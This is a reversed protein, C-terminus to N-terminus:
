GKRVISYLEFQDTEDNLKAPLESYLNEESVAFSSVSDTKITKSNIVLEYIENDDADHISDNKSNDDAKTQVNRSTADNISDDQSELYASDNTAKYKANDAFQYNESYPSEFTEYITEDNDNTFDYVPENRSDDLVNTLIRNFQHCNLNKKQIHSYTKSHKKLKLNYIFFSVALILLIILIVNFIILLKMYDINFTNKPEGSINQTYKTLTFNLLELFEHKLENTKNTVLTVMIDEIEAVDKKTEKLNNIIKGYTSTELIGIKEKLTLETNKLNDLLFETSSKLSKEISASLNKFNIEDSNKMEIFKLSLGSKMDNLQNTFNLDMKTIKISLNTNKSDVSQIKHLCNKNPDNLAQKLNDVSTPIKKLEKEFKGISSNLNNAQSRSFSELKSFNEQIKDFKKIFEPNNVSMQLLGNTKNTLEELSSNLKELIELNIFFLGIDEPLYLIEKNKASFALTRKKEKKVNEKKTRLDDSVTCLSYTKFGFTENTLECSINLISAGHIKTINILM